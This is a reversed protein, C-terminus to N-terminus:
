ILFENEIMQRVKALRFYGVGVSRVSVFRAKAVNVQVGNKTEM